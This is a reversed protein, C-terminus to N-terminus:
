VRYQVVFVYVAGSRSVLVSIRVIFAFYEAKFRDRNERRPRIVYEYKSSSLFTDFKVTVTNKNRRRICVNEGPLPARYYEAHTVARRPLLNYRAPVKGLANELKRLLARFRLSFNRFFTRLIAFADAGPM